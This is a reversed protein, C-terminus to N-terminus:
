GATTAGPIAAPTPVLFVACLLSGIGFLAIVCGMPWPTGDAFIGVLASGLIGTGYQAAGMLASVAGAREPLGDLAGAIANAVILGNASVFLFLPIVLGMLGGFGTWADIALLLGTVAGVVTGSRMLRDRGLRMVLRENLQNTLMIGAVGASFLVGYLQPSVHHYSIYAFPSGAINAYLAGYFLGCAGAYGLLRRKRLLEGYGLLARTLPERNRRAPPLTEPVAYLAALTVLGIGVLTWFIARWSAVRLILGGISPGVLPAVAMVTMLTSLVQAARQGAYLDRMMARALVVSACAGLAQLVRWGILMAASTSWACGASGIIFLLLGIAIPLRRGHRDGIPGWLLQGLSFGVLYGSITLEIAGADAHLSAGMAPLAPLYLDTSISAFALLTGLVALIRGDHGASAVCGGSEVLREAM